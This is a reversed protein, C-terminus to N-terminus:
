TVQIEFCREVYLWLQMDHMTKSLCLNLEFGELTGGAVNAFCVQWREVKFWTFYTAYCVRSLVIKLV